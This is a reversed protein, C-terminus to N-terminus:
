STPTEPSNKRILAIISIFHKKLFIPIEVLKHSFFYSIIAIFVNTHLFAYPIRPVM